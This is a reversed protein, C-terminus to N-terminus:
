AGIENRGPNEYVNRVNGLPTRQLLEKRKGTSHNEKCRGQNM